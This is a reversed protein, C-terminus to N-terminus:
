NCYMYTEKIQKVHLDLPKNQNIISEENIKRSNAM